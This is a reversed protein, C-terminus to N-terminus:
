ISTLSIPKSALWAQWMVVFDTANIFVPRATTTAVQTAAVNVAENGAMKRQEHLVSLYM